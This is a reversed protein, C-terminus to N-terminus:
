IYDRLGPVSQVLFQVLYMGSASVAMLGDELHSSQRKPFNICLWLDLHSALPLPPDRGHCLMGLREQGVLLLELM